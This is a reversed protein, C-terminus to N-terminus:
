RTSHSAICARPPSDSRAQVSNSDVRSRIRDREEREEEGGERARDEEAEEEGREESLVGLLGRELNTFLYLDLEEM